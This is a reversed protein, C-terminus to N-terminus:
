KVQFIVKMNPTLSTKKLWIVDYVDNWIPDKSDVPLPSYKTSDDFAFPLYGSNILLSFFKEYVDQQCAESHGLHDWEMTMATIPPDM